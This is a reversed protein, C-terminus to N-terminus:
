NKLLKAAMELLDASMTLRKDGLKVAGARVVKALRETQSAMRATMRNRYDEVTTQDVALEYTHDRNCVLSEEGLTDRLYRVGNSVQGQTLHARDMLQDTTLRTAAMLEVFILEGAEATTRRIM